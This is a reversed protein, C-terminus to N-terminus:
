RSSLCSIHIIPTALQLHTSFLFFAIIDQSVTITFLPRELISHGFYTLQCRSPQSSVQIVSM